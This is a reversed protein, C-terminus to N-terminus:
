RRGDEEEWTIWTREEEKNIRHKKQRTKEREKENTNIKIM